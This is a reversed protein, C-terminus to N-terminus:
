ASINQCWSELLQNLAGHHTLFPAHGCDKFVHMQSNPMHQDLFHAAAIPVIADQEGHLILTPLTISQITQRFDFSDLMSLGAKLATISPQHDRNIAHKAIHNRQQRTLIDGHLMMQFFRSMLKSNNQAAAQQFGQWVDDDCGHIWTDKQRFCPTTALLVLGQIIGAERLRQAVAIALQGGLSWGMLIMPQRHNAHIQLIEAEIHDLWAHSDCPSAEGHGPLDIAHLYPQQFWVQKSQGWGHLAIINNM